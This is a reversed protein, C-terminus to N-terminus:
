GMWVYISWDRAEFDGMSSGARTEAAWMVGANGILMNACLLVRTTKGNVLFLHGAAAASTSPRPHPPPLPTLPCFFITM